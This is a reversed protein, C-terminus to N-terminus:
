LLTAERKACRRQPAATNERDFAGLGYAAQVSGAARRGLDAARPKRLM